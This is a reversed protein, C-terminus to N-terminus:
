LEKIMPVIDEYHGDPLLFGGPITGLARFGLSEYLVIAATNTAVVANFQMLRFGLSKAQVLSHNVLRRGIGQGRATASVGYSANAIHGCRGVNNPHLIYLGLIEGTKTDAAVGCFDQSTFFDRASKLDLEERQPFAIGGAVVENWVTLMGPLDEPRYGRLKYKM